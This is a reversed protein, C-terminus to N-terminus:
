WNEYPKIKHISASKGLDDMVEMLTKVAPICRNLDEKTRKYSIYFIVKNTPGIKIALKARHTQPIIICKLGAKDVAEKILTQATLQRIETVMKMSRIKKLTETVHKEVDPKIVNWISEIEIHDKSRRNFFKGIGAAELRILKGLDSYGKDVFQGESIDGGARVKERIDYTLIKKLEVLYESTQM